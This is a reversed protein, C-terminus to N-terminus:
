ILKAKRSLEIVKRFYTKMFASLKSKATLRRSSHQKLYDLGNSLKGFDKYIKCYIFRSSIYM